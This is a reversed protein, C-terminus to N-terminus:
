EYRLAEIPSKQAAKSAPYLGFVIGVGAAVGIGLLAASIPFSFSWGPAVTRQLVFVVLTTFSAGAVVGLIGGILTLAVSELLFQQRIDADRAGIAKRLGIERTREVVAVLMINMIGVGGVLLSVAAVAALFYTLINTVTNVREIADAQTIIWFDDKSPDAIRHDTRLTEAVDHVTQTVFEETEAEILFHHFYKIGFIYQQATTYPVVVAEDFNMFSVQGKKPLLGVVRFTRDNIKVKEGVPDTNGFLEDRVKSGIVIVDARNRVDEDAIFRGDAVNIKYIQALLESAGFITVHYTESAYSATEAGFLLGDIRALTPANTKKQLEDLDRQKLSDSFMQASDSPGKPERGPHVVITKSGINQVQGLIIDQAGRGLAMVMMIATIGIVIGLITLVSRMRNTRLNTFTVRFGDRIRM